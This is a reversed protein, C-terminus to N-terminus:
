AVSIGIAGNNIGPDPIYVISTDRRSVRLTTSGPANGRIIINDANVTVSAINQDDTSYIVDQDGIGDLVRYDNATLTPVLTLQTGVPVFWPGVPTYQVDVVLPFLLNFLNISSRDPVYIVRTYNEQSEITVQYIGTRFLDTSAYGDQDTRIAVREGLVGYGDVVLPRFCPIFHMDVGRRPRGDPGWVFGSARCLRPNTATPLTFLSATVLFNNAGTPALSPPSFVQIYQPSKIAGGNIYFRLQYTTPLPGSGNLTFQVSGSGPTPVGTTGETIFTTGTSDFVRVVVADVPQPVIQDDKVVVNVTELAM